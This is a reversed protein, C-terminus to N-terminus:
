PLPSKQVLLSMFYGLQVIVLTVFFALAHINGYKMVIAFLIGATILKVAEGWYFGTLIQRSQSAGTTKFIKYAFYGNCFTCIAGAYLSSVAATKGSAALFGCALIAVWALQQFIVRWVYRQLKQQITFNLPREETM